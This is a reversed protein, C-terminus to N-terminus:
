RTKSHGAITLAFGLTTKEGDAEVSRHTAAVVVGDGKDILKPDAPKGVHPFLLMVGPHDGETTKSSLKYLNKPELPEPGADDAVPVLLAFETHPATGSHDGTEPQIALRLTYDGAAITQKRFDVFPRSFRVAGILTGDPVERYTLGNKVQEATARAPIVKRFWIVVVDEGSETVVLASRDLLERVPGALGAPPEVARTALKRDAAPGLAALFGVVALPIIWRCTV